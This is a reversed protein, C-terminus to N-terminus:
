FPAAWSGARLTALCRRCTGNPIFKAALGSALVSWSSGSGIYHRIFRQRPPAAWRGPGLTFRAPGAPPWGLRCRESRTRWSLQFSWRVAGNHSDPSKLDEDTM